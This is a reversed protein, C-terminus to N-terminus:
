KQLSKNNMEESTPATRMFFNSTSLIVRWQCIDFINRSRRWWERITDNDHKLRWSYSANNYLEEVTDL